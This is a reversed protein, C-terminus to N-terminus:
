KNRLNEIKEAFYSKKEPYKVILKEYIEIAKDTKGQKLMINALNESVLGEPAQISKESLDKTPAEKSLTSLSSIRPETKIFQDIIETQKIKKIKDNFSDINEQTVDTAQVPIEPQLNVKEQESLPMASLDARALLEDFPSPEENIQEAQQLNPDNASIVSTAANNVSTNDVPIELFKKLKYRSIAYVAAHQVKEEAQVTLLDYHPKAYFFHALQCYPFQEAFVELAPIDSASIRAPHAIFNSFLDRNL